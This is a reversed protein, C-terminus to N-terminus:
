KIFAGDKFTHTDSIKGEKGDHLEVLMTEVDLGQKSQEIDIVMFSPLLTAVFSWAGTASGPNILLVQHGDSARQYLNISSAHTHGSILVHVGLEKAIEALGELDGRPSVQHGHILGFKLVDFGRIYNRTDFVINRPFHKVNRADYDMNGQVVFYDRSWSALFPELQDAKTLDGTCAVLDFNQKNAIRMISADLEPPVVFTRDPIHFDGIALVRM